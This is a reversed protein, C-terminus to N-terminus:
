YFFFPIFIFSSYLFEIVTERESFFFHCRCACVEESLNSPMKSMPHSTPGTRLTKQIRTQITTTTRRRTRRLETLPPVTRRTLLGSRRSSLTSRSFVSALTELPFFCDTNPEHMSHFHIDLQDWYAHPSPSLSLCAKRFAVVCFFNTYQIAPFKRWSNLKTAKTLAIKQCINFEQSFNKLIGCTHSWFYEHICLYAFLVLAVVPHGFLLM